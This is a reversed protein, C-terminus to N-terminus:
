DDGDLYESARAEGGSNGVFPSINQKALADLERMKEDEYVYLYTNTLSRRIYKRYGHHIARRATRWFITYLVGGDVGPFRNMIARLKKLYYGSLYNTNIGEVYKKKDDHFVLIVPIPDHKWGGVQGQVQKKGYRFELIQGAMIRKSKVSLKIKIM